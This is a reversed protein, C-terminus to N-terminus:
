IADLNDLRVPTHMSALLRGHLCVPLWASQIFCAFTFLISLFLEWVDIKEFYARPNETEEDKNKQPRETKAQRKSFVRKIVRELRDLLSRKKQAFSALLDLNEFYIGSLNEM